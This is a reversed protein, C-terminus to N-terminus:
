YSRSFTSMVLISQAFTWMYNDWIYHRDIDEVRIGSLGSENMSMMGEGVIPVLICDSQTMVYWSKDQGNLVADRIGMMSTVMTKTSTTDLQKFLGFVSPNYLNKPLGSYSITMDNYIKLWKRRDVSFILLKLIGVESIGMSLQKQNLRKSLIAGDPQLLVISDESIGNRKCYGNVLDRMSGHIFRSLHNSERQLMGIEKNRAIKNNIDLGDPVVGINRILNYACATFDYEYGVDYLLKNYSAM